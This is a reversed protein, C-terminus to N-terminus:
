DVFFNVPLGPVEVRMAFVCGSLPLAELEATSRGHRRSTLYLTKLDDGGFCVMTPCQAPTPMEALLTGDPAFKCVLRGEYMATYYNGLVDVAAGDPRGQYSLNEFTWGQPKPAFQLYIRHTALTNGHPEYDWAHIVHNSTDAWYLTSGDPSWALGNGTLANGAKRQVVAPGPSACDISFLSANRHAKSEDVTGVWFRGQADCKGDNARSIAPDYDLTAIQKLEGAWEQARFVGHRMAIVLGGNKAPAICGPETPMAWTQVTGGLADTRVIKKCAIDVWYLMKEHPHWFPSEGLEQPVPSVTQWTM